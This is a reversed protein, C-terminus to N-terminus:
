LSIISCAISIFSLKSSISPPTIFPYQNKGYVSRSQIVSVKLIDIYGNPHYVKEFSQRQNNTAELNKGIYPVIENKNIKVFKEPPENLEHISRLCSRSSYLKFYEIAKSIKTPDRLPTTPRLLVIWDDMELNLEQIAHQLYSLDSSTDQSMEDPRKITGAKYTKAIELYEDSDSTVYCNDIEKTLKSAAISYAILPFNSLLKINKHSISKSGSRAPIISIIKM